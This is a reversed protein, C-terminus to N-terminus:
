PQVQAMWAHQAQLLYCLHDFSFLMPLHLLVVTPVREVLGVKETFHFLMQQVLLGKKGLPIWSWYVASELSCRLGIDMYPNAMDNLHYRMPQSNQFLSALNTCHHTCNTKIMELNCLKALLFGVFFIRIIGSLQNVTNLIQTMEEVMVFRQFYKQSCVLFGQFIWTTNIITDAPKQGRPEFFWGSGFSSPSHGSRARRHSIM